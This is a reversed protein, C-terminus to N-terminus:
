FVKKVKLGRLSLIFHGNSTFLLPILNSLSCVDESGTLSTSMTQRWMLVKRLVCTSESSQGERSIIINEDPIQVSQTVVM